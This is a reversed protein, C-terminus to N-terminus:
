AIPKSTRIGWRRDGVADAEKGVQHRREHAEALRLEICRRAYAEPSIGSLGEVEFLELILAEVDDWTTPKNLGTRMPSV